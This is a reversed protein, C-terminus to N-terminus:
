IIVTLEEFPEVMEMFQRVLETEDVVEVLVVVMWRVGVEKDDLLVFSDDFMNGTFDFDKIPVM